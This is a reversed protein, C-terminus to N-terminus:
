STPSKSLLRVVEQLERCAPGGAELLKQPSLKSNHPRTAKRPVVSDTPLLHDTSCGLVQGVRKTLEYRTGGQESSAHWVGPTGNRLLWVCVEAIDGIWAPHRILVNDLTQPEDSQVADVMHQLFGEGEGILVPVRLVMGLPHKLVFPEAEAKTRGYVNVPSVPDSESYPPELGSFVYDTSIHLLTCSDPITEALWAPLDRNVKETERVQEECPDPDRLAATHVVVEPQVRDLLREVEGQVTLDAQLGGEPCSSRGVPVLTTEKELRPALASGLFGTAGTLLCVPKTKM